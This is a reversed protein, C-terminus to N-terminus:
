CLLELVSDHYLRQRECPMAFVCVCVMEISLTQDRRGSDTLENGLLSDHNQNM